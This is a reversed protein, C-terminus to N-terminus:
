QYQAILENLRQVLLHVTTSPDQAALDTSSDYSALLKQAHQIAKEQSGYQALEGYMNPHNKTYKFTKHGKQKFAKEILAPYEQRRTATQHYYFHLLFWLEFADNSYACRINYTQTKVLAIADKFNQTANNDPNRDHDFVVWIETPKPNPATNSEKIAKEVLSVHNYGTGFAEIKVTQKRKIKDKFAKFYNPETEKGECYIAVYDFIKRTNEKRATSRASRMLKSKAM